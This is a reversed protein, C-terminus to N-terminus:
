QRTLDEEENDDDSAHDLKTNCRFWPVCPSTQKIYRKLLKIREAPWERMMKGETMYTVTALTLSNIVTGSVAWPQGLRVSFM